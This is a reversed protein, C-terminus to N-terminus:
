LGQDPLIGQGGKAATPTFTHWRDNFRVDTIYVLLCYVVPVVLSSCVCGVTPWRVYLKPIQSLPPFPSVFSHSLTSASVSQPKRKLSTPFNFSVWERPALARSSFKQSSSKVPPRSSNSLIKTQLQGRCSFEGTLSQLVPSMVPFVYM